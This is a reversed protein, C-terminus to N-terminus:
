KRPSNVPKNIKNLKYVNIKNMEIHGIKEIKLEIEIKNDLYEDLLVLDKESISILHSDGFDHCQILPSFLIGLEKMKVVMYGHAIGFQNSKSLISDAKIIENAENDKGLNIYSYYKDLKEIKDLISEVEKLFEKRNHKEIKHTSSLNFHSGITGNITIVENNPKSNCNLVLAIIILLCTSTAPSKTLYM